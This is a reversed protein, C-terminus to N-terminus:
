FNRMLNNEHNQFPFCGVNGSFFSRSWPWEPTMEWPSAAQPGWVKRLEKCTTRELIAAGDLDALPLFLGNALHFDCSKHGFRLIPINCQNPSDLPLFGSQWYVIPIPVAPRSHLGHGPFTKMRASTPTPPCHICTRTLVSIGTQRRDESGEKLERREGQSSTVSVKSFRPVDDSEKWSHKRWIGCRKTDLGWSLDRNM